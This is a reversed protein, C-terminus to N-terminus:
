SANLLKVKLIIEEKNVFLIHLLYFNKFEGNSVYVRFSKVEALYDSIFEADAALPYEKYPKLSELRYLKEDKLIYAVYPNIRQHLSHSTQMFVVDNKRDQNLLNISINNDRSDKLILSFDMYLTKKIRQFNKIKQIETSIIKNSKNLGAYSKYLFLMLISLIMISILLEILTFAKRM